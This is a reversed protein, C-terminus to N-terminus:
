NQYGFSKEQSTFYIFSSLRENIEYINFLLYKQSIDFYIFLEHKGDVTLQSLKKNTENEDVVM